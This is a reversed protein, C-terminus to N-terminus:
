QSVTFLSYFHGKKEMLEHFSGSEIISGNKLTLVCDYRKLLSEELTHTVVIRTLHDLNLIANSVQFATQADLAATAEDVLLVQSKKLLSRAISIRQKEGGSLGSGNEGCLYGEGREAILRSLGSLEIARDVAERPFDSFMTINDRISANFIFVNQQVVSVLEYLSESSIRRLETEDYCISGTYGAHSAMLLNLLTSKGSGSAGVIAYSKGAEFTYNVNQLVPKEAEYGFSLEKVSIGHSLETKSELGEERVNDELANALKDILGCSAKCQALYQPVSGIPNVVYNMLNVFAILTGASIAHGGMALAAGAIFVGFQAIVGAVLGMCQVVIATKRRITKAVTVEKIRQAFLRCMAAEAKFSKVVSFGSLSDTLTSMYSENKESVKKEAEAVRNGALISAAVPLLALAIGIATLLPSYWMMLAFAGVFLLIEDILSVINSLYDTEITNADNSLASIYFSTNEGTFAAIGKQSIKQFVFEKYQGIAKAIFRPKAQYAMWMGFSFIAICAVCLGTIQLLTFQTDTGTTVDILVQMLWSIMLNAGVLIITQLIAILFAGTNGKYFQRTFSRRRKRIAAKDM